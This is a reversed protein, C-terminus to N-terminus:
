RPDGEVDGGTLDHPQCPDLAVPLPLDEPREAAEQGMVPRYLHLPCPRVGARRGPRAARPDEIQRPVAVGFADEAGHGNPLVQREHDQPFHGLRTEKLSPLLLM